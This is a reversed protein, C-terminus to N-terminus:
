PVKDSAENVFPPAIAVSTTSRALKDSLIQTVEFLAGGAAAVVMGLFPFPTTTFSVLAKNFDAREDRLKYQPICCLYPCCARNASASKIVVQFLVWAVGSGIERQPDRVATLCSTDTGALQEMLSEICAVRSRCTSSACNRRRRLLLMEKLVCNETRRVWLMVIGKYRRGCNSNASSLQFSKWEDNHISFLIVRFTRASDCPYHTPSKNVAQSSLSTRCTNTM